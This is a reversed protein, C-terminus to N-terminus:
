GRFYQLIKIGRKTLTYITSLRGVGKTTVVKILGMRELESLHQYITPLRIDVGLDKIFKWISYGYNYGKNIAELIIVKTRGIRRHEIEEYIGLKLRISRTLERTALPDKLGLGTLICVVEQDAFQDHINILATVTAAAAAEVYIGENKAIIGIAKMVDNYEVRLALGGSKRIALVAGELNLPNSISIDSVYAEEIERKEGLIYDVIPSVGRIQVGIMRPIKDILGLEKMEKFSKWIAFIAGGHGMPVIIADPAKWERDECIEYGITKLGELFFPNNPLIPYYGKSLLNYAKEYGVSLDSIVEIDAGFIMTQYLKGMDIDSPLYIISKLGSKASYASVSAGLNGTSVTVLGDYGKCLAYSVAISVGRDLFSGTPNVTEDKLYVRCKLGLSSALNNAEHLYTCGEGLSVICNSDVSPLIRKYRWLSKVEHNILDSSKIISYDYTITLTNKCKPCVIFDSSIDYRSRCVICEFREM